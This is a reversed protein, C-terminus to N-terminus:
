AAKSVKEVALSVRTSIPSIVENALKMMAETNKSAQAVAGDFSKRFLASQLQFFETPSKVSALEKVDATIAEFASKGDAVVTSGLEQLGSALVKGSEVLAEVNGKAFDNAEGLAETSKEYATKAKEQIDSFATQFPAAFDTPITKAMLKEKLQSLSPIGVSNNKHTTVTSTKAPAAPAPAKRLAPKLAPAKAVAIKRAPKVAVRAAAPRAPAAKVPAKRRAPVPKAAIPTVPVIAEVPASEVPVSEVPAIAEAAPVSDVPATVQPAPAKPKRGRKAPAAPAEAEAEVTPVVDPAAQEALAVPEVPAAVTAPAEPVTEIPAEAEEAM